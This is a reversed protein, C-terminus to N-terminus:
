GVGPLSGSVIRLYALIHLALMALGVKGPGILACRKRADNSEVRCLEFREEVPALVASGESAGREAGRLM